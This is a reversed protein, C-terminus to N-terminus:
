RITEHDPAALPTGLRPPTEPVGNGVHQTLAEVAAGIMPASMYISKGIRYAPFRGERVHRRVTNPALHMFKAVETAEFYETEVLEGLDDDYTTITVAM